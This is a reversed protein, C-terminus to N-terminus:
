PLGLHQGRRRSRALGAGALLLLLAQHRPTKCAAALEKMPDRKFPTADVINYKSVSQVQVDCFRRSAQFHDVIYKQGRGRGAQGVSRCRVERPQVAQRTGRIRSGPNQRPEHDMRRHRRYAQGKWEGAPVAYLGWHIFMGFRADRWWELRKDRKDPTDVFQPLAPAAGILLALVLALYRTKM